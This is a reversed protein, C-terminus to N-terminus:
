YLIWHNSLPTIVVTVSDGIVSGFENQADDVFSTQPNGVAPTVVLDGGAEALVRLKGLLRPGTQGEDALGGLTIGWGDPTSRIGALSGFEASSIQSPRFIGVGTNSITVLVSAALLPTGEGDVFIEFEIEDGPLATLVSPVITVSGVAAGRAFDPTPEGSKTCPDNSIACPAPGPYQVGINAAVSFLDEKNVKRSGNADGLGRCPRCSYDRGLLTHAIVMDLANVVMDFNADGQFGAFPDNDPVNPDTGGDHEAQNDLGDGDPDDDGDQDLNGFHFYEWDDALGDGDSDVVAGLPALGRNVVELVRAPLPSFGCGQPDVILRLMAPTGDAFGETMGELRYTTNGSQFLYGTSDSTVIGAIKVSGDGLAQMANATQAAVIPLLPLRVGAPIEDPSVERGAFIDALVEMSSRRQATTWFRHYDNVLDIMAPTVSDKLAQHLAAENVRGRLGQVVDDGPGKGTVGPALQGDVSREYLRNLLLAVVTSRPSIEEELDFNLLANDYQARYADRWDALTEGGGCLNAFDICLPEPPVVAFLMRGSGDNARARVLRFQDAPLRVEFAGQSLATGGLPQGGPTAVDIRWEAPYPKGPAGQPPANGQSANKITGGVISEVTTLNPATPFEDPDNHNTQRLMEDLDSWGDGDTDAFLPAVDGAGFGTIGRVVEDVDDLRNKNQDRESSLPDRGLDLEIVDPLFDGDADHCPPLALQYTVTKEVGPAGAQVSSGYYFVEMGDRPFIREGQWIQLPGGNISYHPLADEYPSHFTIARMLALTGGPPDISVGVPDFTGPTGFYSAALRPGLQNIAVGVPIGLAENVVLNGAPGFGTAANPLFRGVVVTAGDYPQEISRTYGPVLQTAFV